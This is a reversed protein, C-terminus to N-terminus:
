SSGDYYSYEGETRVDTMVAGGIKTPWGRAQRRLARLNRQTVRGQRVVVLVSDILNSLEAFEVTLLAPPTDLIVLDARSCMEQILSALRSRQPVKSTPIVGGAPLVELSGVHPEGVDDPEATSSRAREGKRKSGATPRRRRGGKRSREPEPGNRSATPGTGELSVTWLADDLATSGAMVQLAGEADSPMGFVEALTGKRFDFDAVIVRTGRRAAAVALNAATTTKGEQPVASTIALVGAEDRLGPHVLQAALLAYTDAFNAEHRGYSVMRTRRPVPRVSALVPAELLDEISAESRVTTDIAERLAAGLLGVVLGISFGILSDRIPAPSTQEASTAPQVLKADSPAAELVVLERIQDDLESRQSSGVPLEAARTELSAITERIQSSTVDGRFNIYAKSVANVIEVAAQEDPASATFTILDSERDGVVETASKLAGADGYRGGTEQAATSYIGPSAAIDVATQQVRQPDIFSPETQTVISSLPTTSILIRTSAEYRPGKLQEFVNVAVIGVVILGVILPLSRRIAAKLAEAGGSIV